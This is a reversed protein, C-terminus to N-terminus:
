RKMSLPKHRQDFYDTCACKHLTAPADVTHRHVVTLL